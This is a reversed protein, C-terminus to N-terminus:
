LIGKEEKIEIVGKLPMVVKISDIIKELEEKNNMPATAVQYWKRLKGSATRSKRELVRVAFDKNLLKQAYAKAANITGFGSLLAYYAKQNEKNIKGNESIIENNNNENVIAEDSEQESESEQENENLACFAYYVKDALSSYAIQESIPDFTSKKGWYYGAIFIFFSLMLWMAAAYSIQKQNLKINKENNLEDM